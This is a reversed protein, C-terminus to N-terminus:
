KAEIFKIHVNFRFSDTALLHCNRIENQTVHHPVGLISFSTNASLDIVQKITFIDNFRTSGDYIMFVNITFPDNFVSKARFVSFNDSKYMGM